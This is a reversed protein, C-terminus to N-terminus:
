RALRRTSSRISGRCCFPRHPSALPSTRAYTQRHSPEVHARILDAVRIPNQDPVIHATVRAGARRPIGAKEAADGASVATVILAPRIAIREATSFHPEGFPGVDFEAKLAEDGSM